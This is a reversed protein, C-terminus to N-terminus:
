TAHCCSGRDGRQLEKFISTGSDGFNEYSQREEATIPHLYCLIDYSEPLDLGLFTASIGTIKKIQKCLKFICTYYFFSVPSYSAHYRTCAAQIQLSKRIYSYPAYQEKIFGSKHSFLSPSKMFFFESRIVTKVRVM